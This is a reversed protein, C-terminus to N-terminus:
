YQQLRALLEETTPSGSNEKHSPSTEAPRLAVEVTPAGKRRIRVKEPAPPLVTLPARAANGGELAERLLFDAGRSRQRQLAARGTKTRGANRPTRPGQLLKALGGVAMMKDLEDLVGPSDVATQLRSAGLGCGGRVPQEKQPAQARKRKAKSEESEKEARLRELELERYVGEYQEKFTKMDAFFQEMPYKKTDFAYYKSFSAWDSKMKSHM